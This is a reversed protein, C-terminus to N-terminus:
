ILESDKVGAKRLKEYAKQHISSDDATVVPMKFADKFYKMAETKNGMKELTEGIYYTNTSYFRPSIEEAKLFHQLANEYTSTPPEAFITKAVLRTAYGLDAFSFHWVGFSILCLSGLSIVTVEYSNQIRAKNGDLEGIYNLLIAYWKHAGFCGEKSEKEIAKEVVAFAERMLTSKELNDKSLKAKECIVRALRWLLESCDSSAFKKLINYANDILYSDYLADAERVVIDFNKPKDSAAKPQEASSFLSLALSSSLGATLIGKTFKAQLLQFVVFLILSKTM